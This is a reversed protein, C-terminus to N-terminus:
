TGARRPTERVARRLVDVMARQYGLFFDTMRRGNGLGLPLRSGEVHEGPGVVFYGHMEARIM